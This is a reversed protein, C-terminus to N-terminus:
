RLGDARLDSGDLADAATVRWTMPRGITVQRTASDRRINRRRGTDARRHHHRLTTRRNPRRHRSRPRRRRRGPSGAVDGLPLLSPLDERCQETRHGSRPRDGARGVRRKEVEPHAARLDEAIVAVVEGANFSEVPADSPEERALQLMDTVLGNLRESEHGIRLMARDLVGPEGLMGGAYLDSYGKLATLPTRLEHSVDALFRRMGDRSEAATVAALEHGDITARLRVLMHDLAAALDATERSASPAVVDTRTVPRVALTALLLIAGAVLLLVVLGFM